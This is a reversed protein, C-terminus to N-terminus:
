FKVGIICVDDVQEFDGKWLDFTKSVHEKQDLLEFQNLSLLFNKFPKYKFKKGGVKEVLSEGGFQDSFGDTFLYVLDGKELEIEHESFTSMDRYKGIPKRDGKIEILGIDEKLMNGKSLKQEDTIKDIKKIIWVPNNAGSFTMKTGNFACLSIDMGDKVNDGSLSFREVVLERTKELIAAPSKLNFEKVSRNLANSCVVSVMAGPVGHGTCDAAALFITNDIKEFWYFDGSVVDKPKFFIFNEPIYNAIDEISPLIASQLRKAYTISDTIEKHTVALQEHQFAIEEKQINIENRQRKTIKLRNFVFILFVVVLILGSFVAYLIVQQKEQAEKEIAILKDNEADDITKQKEYRYKTQQKVINNRTEENQLSDRMSVYLRHMALAEVGRNELEYINTLTHAANKIELPYGIKQAIKLAKESFELAKLSKNNKFYINGITSLVKAIGMQYTVEEYLALSKFSYDLAQQYEKKEQHLNAINNYTDALDVKNAIQKYILVSSNFYELAEDFRKNQFHLLGINNQSSAIGQQNGIEIRLDLAREFYELPKVTDGQESYIIALNNLSSSIGGLNGIEEEIKLERFYYELAKEVDGIEHYIIGINNNVMAEGGRDNIELYVELSQEYYDLANKIDAIDSYVLGINNLTRAVGVKNGLDREITISQQFAKLAKETTGNYRHILGINNLSNALKVRFFYIEQTTLDKAINKECILIIKKNLEQDLKPDTDYILNDWELYAIVTVTDNQSTEAIVKLSDVSRQTEPSLLQSSLNNSIFVLFFIHVLTKTM